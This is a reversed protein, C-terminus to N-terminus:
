VAEGENIGGAMVPSHDGRNPGFLRLVNEILYHTATWTMLASSLFLPVSFFWSRPLDIPLAVTSARGEITMIGTLTRMLTVLLWIVLGWALVRLLAQLKEPAATVVSVITVHRMQKLGVSAGLFTMWVLAYAGGEQEWAIPNGLGASLAVQMLITLIVGCLILSALFQEAFGVWALLRSSLDLLRRM